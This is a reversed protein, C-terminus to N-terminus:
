AEVACARLARLAWCCLQVQSSSSLTSNAERLAASPAQAQIYVSFPAFKRLSETVLAIWHELHRCLPETPRKTQAFRWCLAWFDTLKQAEAVGSESGAFASGLRYAEAFKAVASVYCQPLFKRQCGGADKASDLEQSTPTATVQLCLAVRLGRIKKLFPVCLSCVTFM